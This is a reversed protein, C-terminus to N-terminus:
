CPCRMWRDFNYILRGNQRQANFATQAHHVLGVQYDHIPLIWEPHALGVMRSLIGQPHAGVNAMYNVYRHRLKYFKVYCLLACAMFFVLM